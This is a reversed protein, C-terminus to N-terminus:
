RKAGKRKKGFVVKDVLFLRYKCHNVLFDVMGLRKIGLTGSQVTITGFTKGTGYSEETGFQCFQSLHDVVEKENYGMGRDTM